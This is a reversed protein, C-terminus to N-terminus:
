ADYGSRVAGLGGIRSRVARVGGAASRAAAIRIITYAAQGSYSTGAPLGTIVYPGAEALLARAAAQGVDVGTLTYAGTTAACVRAVVDLAAAGTVAYVGPVSTLTLAHRTVLDAPAGTLAYTGPALPVVYGRVGTVASGTVAYAGPVGLMPTPGRVLAAAQGTLLYAGAETILVKGMRLTADTGTLAYAGSLAVMSRGRALLADTGTITYAGPDTPLTFAGSTTPDVWLRRRPTPAYLEWRTAPAYLAALEAQSLARNYLRWDWSAGALAYTADGHLTSPAVLNVGANFSTEHALLANQYFRWVGQYSVTVAVLHRQTRDVTALPAFAVRDSIGRFISCYITGDTYPYHTRQNCGDLQCLGTNTDVSPTAEALQVWVTLTAAGAFPFAATNVTTSLSGNASAPTRGIAAGDATITRSVGGVSTAPASGVRDLITAASGFTDEGTIPWWHVLGRAQMSARNIGAFAFPRAIQGAPPLWRM